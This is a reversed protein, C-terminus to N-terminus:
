AMARRWRLESFFLSCLYFIMVLLYSFDSFPMLKCQCLKVKRVLIDMGSPYFSIPQSHMHMNSGVYGSGNIIVGPIVPPRQDLHFGLRHQHLAGYFQLENPFCIIHNEM